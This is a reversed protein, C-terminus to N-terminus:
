RYLNSDRTQSLKGVKVLQLKKHQRSLMNNDEITGRMIYPVITVNESQGLRLARGIAQLEISPNWQPEFLYICTAFALNLGVASTGLTM